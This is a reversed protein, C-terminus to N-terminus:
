EIQGTAPNYTRKRTTESGDNPVSVQRSPLSPKITYQSVADAMGPRSALKGKVDNFHGQTQVAIDRRIKLIRKLAEPTVTIDGGVMGETFKRDADSLGTGSGFAQIEKAVMQGANALFVESNAVDTSMGLEAGMKKMWATVPGTVGTPMQDVLSMNIDIMDISSQAENAAAHLDIFNDVNALELKEVMANSVNHIKSVQVSPKLGMESPSRWAGDGENAEKDWVLGSKHTRMMASTGDAKQYGKVDADLGKTFDTFQQDTMKDLGLASFQEDNLGYQKAVVKRGQAGRKTLIDERRYKRLDRTAEELDVEGSAVAEAQGTMGIETYGKVLTERLNQERLLAEEALRAKQSAQAMAMQNGTDGVAGYVEAAKAMDGSKTLDLQGLVSQAELEKGGQNMFSMPDAGLHGGLMNGAGQSATNLLGQGIEGGLPNAQVASNIQNFMGAINGAM